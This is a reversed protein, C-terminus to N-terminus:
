QIVFRPRFNSVASYSEASFHSPLSFHILLVVCLILVLLWFESRFELGFRACIVPFAVLGCLKGNLVLLNM